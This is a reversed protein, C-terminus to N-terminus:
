TKLNRRRRLAARRGEVEAESPVAVAAEPEARSLYEALSRVTPYRFLVVVSAERAFRGAL